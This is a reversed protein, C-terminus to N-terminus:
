DRQLNWFTLLTSAGFEEGWGAGRAGAVLSRMAVGAAAALGAAKRLPGAEVRRWRLTESMLANFPADIPLSRCAAPEFGAGRALRTLTALTFHQLHRPVDYAIWDRGYAKRDVSDHNPVAVVLLGEPDLLRRARALIGAPDGVHEVVHWMTIVDFPGKGTELDELRGHVVELGFAERAREAAAADVEVGLVKWGARRMEALFEGTACGVDLLKRGRARKEIRRRKWSNNFDRMVVYAREFLSRRGGASLFPLYGNEPYFEGFREAAPRPNLFVLDCGVCRVLRYVDGEELHFRDPVREYLVNERSGCVPCSVDVLTRDSADDPRDM